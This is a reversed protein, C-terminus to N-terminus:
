GPPTRALVLADVRGAGAQRLAEAASFLSAGSTMVDDVLVVRVGRLEDARLPEVAFAGKVNDLREQRKLQSQPRTSRVRLLLSPDLRARCRSAAHLAKAIEWAQNFGRERLRDTALPMPMLRDQLTLSGLLDRAAPLRLLREAFFETWGTDSSFKYRSILGAWPYAYTLAAHCAELRSGRQRCDPCQDLSVGQSGFPTLELACTRCRPVPSAFRALCPTCVAGSPWAKCVACHSPLASKCAQLTHRLSHLLM